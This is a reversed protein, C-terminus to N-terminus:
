SVRRYINVEVFKMNLAHCCALRHHGEYIEYSKNYKNEILPERMIDPRENIGNIKIDEYLDIFKSARKEIEQLIHGYRKQMKGYLLTTVISLTKTRGFEKYHELLLTHPLGAIELPEYNTIDSNVFLARFRSPNYQVKIYHINMVCTDMKEIKMNSTFSAM